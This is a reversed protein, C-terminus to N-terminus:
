LVVSVKLGETWDMGEKIVQNGNSDQGTWAVRIADKVFADKM